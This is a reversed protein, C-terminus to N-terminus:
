SDLQEIMEKFNREEVVDIRHEISFQELTMDFYDYKLRKGTKREGEIFRNSSMWTVDVIILTDDIYVGVWEHNTPSDAIDAIAIGASELPVGGRMSITDYGMTECMAAFLNSFGTCTARHTKLVTKLNYTEIGVYTAAADWDYYIHYAVYKALERVKEYDTEVDATIEISLDTIEQWVEKCEAPNGEGDFYALLVANDYQVPVRNLKNQNNQLVEPIPEYYGKYTRHYNYLNDHINNELVFQTCLKNSFLSFVIYVIITVTLLKTYRSKLIVSM